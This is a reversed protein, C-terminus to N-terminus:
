GNRGNGPGGNGGGGNNGGGNNGGGNGPGPFGVGPQAPGAPPAPPQGNSLRLTITAGRSATGSPSQEAVTGAPYPSSVQDGAVSVRFGAGELQARASQESQGVVSPVGSREGYVQRDNPSAFGPVEKGAMVRDMYRKWTPAAISSGYPGNRYRKGNIVQGNMSRFNESYGVWVATARLPNYGAFWTNENGTTTGTKGAATYAPRGIDSATGSWVNSLAFNMAAAIQPDIAGPRCDAQPVPLENGQSDTVSTIAIPKCYTGGSAFTAYAAAIQLPSTSESGLVNAPTGTFPANGPTGWVTTSNPDGAQTVGLDAAGQMIDCLNLQKAMAVYASNVSNRTADLVSQPIARGGESNGFKWTEGSLRICSQFERPEYQLRTGNVTENLSHGKKLWELLTFVKFTSGPAFGQSGGYQYSTNFNVATDTRPGDKTVSYNRNQAMALIKGTGPEVTVIASAVGSGDEVPVGAKVEQDAATQEAPDLTTRITLGGRYLRNKRVDSTEGFAPDNIIVKTVYDCFFGAGSVVDSAAVCGQRLPHPNLTAAIPTALGAALEDATIYGEREMDKLVQDRRAQSKAQRAAKVEPTEDAPGVPDLASPSQTIGAITAAELYTVDKASKGFYYQAASEVGYVSAGFPAINLYKELIEDKSMRQELTIAIKAERLKRAVGEPGDSERAAAIIAQREEETEALEAADVLVNKVYQQTLTSAGQTKGMATAVAARVMGAPDVGSHEYFRRDEVAIVAKQMIPAIEALPVATRNQLFVTALLTGDAALIESKQPLTREELESPIEEFATVSMTTAGNAAAVGPLLLGASLVGGLVAVLLFSVMLGLAQVASVKRGRARAPTPM